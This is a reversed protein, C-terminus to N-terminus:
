SIKKAQWRIKMREFASKRRRLQKAKLYKRMITSAHRGHGGIFEFQQGETTKVVFGRYYFGWIIEFSIYDVNRWPILIYGGSTSRFELAKDGYFLRGPRINVPSMVANAPASYEYQQQKVESM